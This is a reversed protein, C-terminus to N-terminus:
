PLILVAQVTSRFNRFSIAGMASLLVGYRMFREPMEDFMKDPIHQM